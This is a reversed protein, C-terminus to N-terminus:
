KKEEATQATPVQVPFGLSQQPGSQRKHIEEVTAMVYTVVQGPTVGTRAAVERALDAYEGHVTRRTLLEQAYPDLRRVVEDDIEPLRADAPVRSMGLASCYEVINMIIFVPAVVFSLVGWWGLLLTALTTTWFHSHVCPKCLNGKVSKTFWVFVGIIQRFEVYRVPAEIGCSQCVIGDEM